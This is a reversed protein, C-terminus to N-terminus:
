IATRLTVIELHLPPLHTKPRYQTLHTPALHDHLAHLPPTETILSIIDLREASTVVVVNQEEQVCFAHPPVQVDAYCIM